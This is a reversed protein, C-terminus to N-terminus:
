AFDIWAQTPESEWVSRSLYAVRVLSNLVSLITSTNVCLDLDIAIAITLKILLKESVKYGHGRLCQTLIAGVLAGEDSSDVVKM